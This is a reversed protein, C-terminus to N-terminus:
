NVKCYINEINILKEKLWLQQGTATAVSYPWEMTPPNTEMGVVITKIEGAFKNIIVTCYFVKSPFFSHRIL